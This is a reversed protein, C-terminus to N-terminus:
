RCALGIQKAVYLLPGLNENTIKMDNDQVGTSHLLNRVAEYVEMANELNNM